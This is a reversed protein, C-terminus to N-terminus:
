VLIKGPAEVAHRVGGAQRIRAEGGGGRFFGTGSPEDASEEEGRGGNVVHVAGDERQDLREEVVEGEHAPVEGLVGDVLVDEVVVVAVDDDAELDGVSDTEERGAADDVLEAGLETVGDGDGDPRESRHRVSEDATDDAEADGAGQEAETLGSVEGGGDLGGRLPEGGFLTSEGGADEVGAGVGGGEDGRSEDGKDGVAEAPPGGEDGGAGHTQDPENDPKEERIVLKAASGGLGLDIELLNDRRGRVPAEESEKALEGVVLAEVGERDGFAESIGDPPEIEEIEGLKEVLVVAQIQSVGVPLDDSDVGDGADARDGAASEGAEEHLAAVAYVASTFDSEEDAGEAHNGDHEDWRHSVDRGVAGPGGDGEERKSGSGMLTPGRVEEGGWGVHEGGGGDRGDDAEASGDARDASRGKGPDHLM